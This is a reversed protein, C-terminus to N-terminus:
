LTPMAPSGNLLLLFLGSLVPQQGPDCVGGRGPPTQWLLFATHFIMRM